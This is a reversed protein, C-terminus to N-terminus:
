EGWQSDDDLEPDHPVDDVKPMERVGVRPAMGPAMKRAGERAIWTSMLRDGTHADPSYTKMEAVLAAVEQPMVGNENPFAWRGQSMEIALSEVGFAPHWKNAGTSHALVPFYEGKEAFQLLFRQAGNDEVFVLSGYRQHHSRALALIDPGTMQGAEVCVLDHDGNPYNLLTTAVTLGGGARLSAGVDIGTTFYAGEPVEGFDALSYANGYGNGAALAREIYEAKFRSVLDDVPLVDLQRMAEIPGLQARVSVIRDLPWVEPWNLEGTEHNIVGYRRMVWGPKKGLEHYLDEPHWATGVAIVRATTTLRGGLNSNYWDTLKERQAKTRTNRHSLIDDLILLDVRSGIISGGAGTVQISPDKAGTNQREVTIATSTWPDERNSSRKLNPFVRKLEASNRIYSKISRLIKAAKGHTESVIAIRLNPNRGLEYLARGITIQQSKGSEVHAHLVIRTFADIDQHWQEHHLGNVIRANSQEHRLVCENFAAGSRRAELVRQHMARKAASREQETLERKAAPPTTTNPQVVRAKLSRTPRGTPASTAAFSM